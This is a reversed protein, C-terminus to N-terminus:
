NGPKKLTPYEIGLQDLYTEYKAPDYRFKELAARYRGMVERNLDTPPRTGEPVLPRWKMARTQEAFFDRAAAVLEPRLLLDLATLAQAKAGATAGKHAIPTAMSIGSSWHHMIMGPINGPFRLVVTPVNWSVEGIDDSGGGPTAKPAKLKGVTTELGGEDVRLERQAAHALAQDDDTWVPMGVREINAHEAEAVPRNFYRPWTAGLVRESVTTDTMLAAGQAIRGATARLAEIADPSTERFYYWVAAEDPVVNPQDGGDVIVYHSRQEPRLHERRFNWGVDMLEVADLASRGLWPSVGAHASKGHFTYRTSVLGIGYQGYATSFGSSIHVGLMVDVDKFLGAMVMFTRSGVVEEAIGPYLRLTGRLHYKEMLTKLALVATVNVAQGANHGEGHGPAGEVIPEHWPIGPKQSLGPLCDEDAMFGIVPQGAGWSAVFATPMGAIGREVKFGNAELIGEVYASTATEEYGIESFSYISDVMQRTLVRRGDVARAAEDKLADLSPVAAGVTAVCSLFSFGIAVVKMAM